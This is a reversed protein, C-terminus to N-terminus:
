IGGFQKKEDIFRYRIQEKREKIVCLAGLLLLGDVACFGFFTTFVIDLFQNAFTSFPHDCPGLSAAVAADTCTPDKVFLQTDKYGCCQFKFQLMSQIFPTQSNWVPELNRKTELTSYWIALGIALTLLGCISVLTAHIQLLVINRRLFLIAPLSVLFAAIM